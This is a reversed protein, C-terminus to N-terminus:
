VTAGRWHQSIVCTARTLTESKILPYRQAFTSPAYSGLVWGFLAERQAPNLKDWTQSATLRTSSATGQAELRKLRAVCKSCKRVNERGIALRAQTASVPMPDDRDLVIGRHCVANNWEPRLAHWLGGNATGFWQATATM